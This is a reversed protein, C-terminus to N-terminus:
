GNKRRKEKNMRLMLPTFRLAGSSIPNNQLVGSILAHDHETPDGSGEVDGEGESADYNDSWLSPKLTILAM